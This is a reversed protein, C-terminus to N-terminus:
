KLYVIKGSIVDENGARYRYLYVGTPLSEGTAAHGSWTVSHQGADRVDDVLSTVRRGLVDYINLQVRSRESVSFQFTTAANFPNPYNILKAETSRSTTTFDTNESSQTEDDRSHKDTTKIGDRPQDSPTSKTWVTPEEDPSPDDVPDEFVPDDPTDGVFEDPDETPDDVDSIEGDENWAEPGGFPLDSFTSDNLEADNVPDGEITIIAKQFQPVILNGMGSRWTGAIFSLHNSPCALGTDIEFQGQSFGASFALSMMPAGIGPRGDDGAPLEQGATFAWLVILVADPSEFTLPGISEFCPITSRGVQGGFGDLATRSQMFPHLYDVGDYEGDLFGNLRSDAYNFRGGIDRPFAGSDIERIVLPLTINKLPLENEIFIGLSFTDGPAVTRSEVTVSYGANAALPYDDLSRVGAMMDQAEQVRTPVGAQAIQGMALLCVFGIVVSTRHM